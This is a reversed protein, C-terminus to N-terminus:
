SVLESLIEYYGSFTQRGAEDLQRGRLQSDISHRMAQLYRAQKEAVKYNCASM